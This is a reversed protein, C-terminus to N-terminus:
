LPQLLGDTETTKLAEALSLGRYLRFWTGTHWHWQIDFLDHSV